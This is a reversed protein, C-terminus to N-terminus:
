ASQRTVANQSRVRKRIDDFKTRSSPLQPAGSSHATGNKTRESPLPPPTTKPRRSAPHTTQPLPMSSPTKSKARESPLPPPTTRPRKTVENSSSGNDQRAESSPARDTGISKQLPTPDRPRKREVVSTMPTRVATKPEFIIRVGGPTLTILDESRLWAMRSTDGNRVQITWAGLSEILWRSALKRIRAHRPELGALRVDCLVDSGVVAIDKSVSVRQGSPLEITIAM